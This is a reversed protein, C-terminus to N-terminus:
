LGISGSLSLNVYTIYVYVVKCINIWFSLIIQMRKQWKSITEGSLNQGSESNTQSIIQSRCLGLCVPPATRM